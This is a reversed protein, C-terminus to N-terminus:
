KVTLSSEKLWEFILERVSTDLSHFHNVSQEFKDSVLLLEFFLRIDEVDKMSAGLDGYDRESEPQSYFYDKQRQSYGNVKQFFHDKGVIKATMLMEEFQDTEQQSTLEKLTESLLYGNDVEIYRAKGEGINMAFLDGKRSPIWKLEGNVMRRFGRQLYVLEASM